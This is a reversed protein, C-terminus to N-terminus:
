NNNGNRSEWIPLKLDDHEDKSIYGIVWHSVTWKEDTDFEAMLLLIEDSGLEQKMHKVYPSISYQKFYPNEADKGFADMRFDLVFPINLLESLSNFEVTQPEIGSVYNPIHRKIKM